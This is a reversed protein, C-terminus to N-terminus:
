SETHTQIFIVVGVMRQKHQVIYILLFHREADQCHEKDRKGEQGLRSDM